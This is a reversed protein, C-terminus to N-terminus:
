RKNPHVRTPSRRDKRKRDFAQALEDDALPDCVVAIPHRVAGILRKAGREISPKVVTGATASAPRKDTTM